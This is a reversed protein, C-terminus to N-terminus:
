QRRQHIHPTINHRLTKGHPLEEPESPGDDQGKWSQVSPHAGDKILKITGYLCVFNVVFGSLGESQSESASCTKNWTRWFEHSMVNLNALWKYSTVVLFGNGVLVASLGSFAVYAIWFPWVSPQLIITLKKWWLSEVFIWPWRHYWTYATLHSKRLFPKKCM